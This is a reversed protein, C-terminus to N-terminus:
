DRTYAQRNRPNHLSRNLDISIIFGDAKALEVGHDFHSDIRNIRCVNVTATSLVLDDPAPHLGAAVTVMQDHNCLATMRTITTVAHRWIVDSGLEM